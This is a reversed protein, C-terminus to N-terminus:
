SIREFNRFISYFFYFTVINGIFHLLGMELGLMSGNSFTTGRRTARHIM